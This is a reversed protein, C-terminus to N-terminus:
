NGTNAPGMQNGYKYKVWAYTIINILISKIVIIPQNVQLKNLMDSLGGWMNMLLIKNGM